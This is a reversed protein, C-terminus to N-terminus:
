LALFPLTLAMSLRSSAPLASTVAWKRLFVPTGADHVFSWLRMNSAIKDFGECAEGIGRDFPQLGKVIVYTAHGRGIPDAAEAKQFLGATVHTVRCIFKNGGDISM